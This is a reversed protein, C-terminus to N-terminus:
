PNRGKWGIVSLLFTLQNAREELGGVTHGRDWAVQLLIPNSCTQAAQLRAALKYSNWSALLGDQDGHTILIPPYCANEQVNHYPSWKLLAQFEEPDAPDGHINGMSGAFTNYRLLDTNGYNISGAGFLDPRQNLAAGALPASASGGNAVLLQSNTYEQDVLWEGAAIYDNIGTQKNLGLGAEIWEQGYEGGGRINALAYIGGQDLWVRHQVQYWPAASWRSGYAYLWLPRPQSLDLGKKYMLFLPIKTGDQSPYFVQKTIYQDAEFNDSRRFFLQTEETAIDMLYTSGPDATNQINFAFRSEGEIGVFGAPLWGIYPLSLKQLLRGKFDYTEIAPLADEVYHILYRDGIVYAGNLTAQAKEPILTSAAALQPEALNLHILKGKPAQVTTSFYFDSDENRLFWLNQDIDEFVIKPASSPQQLDLICLGNQVSEFTRVILYRGQTSTAVSFQKPSNSSKRYFVGDPKLNAGLQHFYVQQGLPKEKNMEPFATYFFGTEDPLWCVTAQAARMHIGQVKDRLLEMERTDFVYWNSWSSNGLHVGFAIYRGSPSVQFSAAGSGAYTAFSAEGGFHGVDLLLEEEGGQGFRRFLGQQLIASSDRWSKQYYWFGKRPHPADYHVPLARVAQMQELIEKRLPLDELESRTLQDQEKLWKQTQESDSEELWRYPDPVLNDHFTDIVTSRPSLPYILHVSAPDQQALLIFHGVGWLIVTGLIEKM